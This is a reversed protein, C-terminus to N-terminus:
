AFFAFFRAEVSVRPAAAESPLDASNHPPQADRAPDSDFGKFVILEGAAIGRLWGRAV